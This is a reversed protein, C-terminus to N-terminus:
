KGHRIGDAMKEILETSFLSHTEVTEVTWKSTLKRTKASLDVKEVKFTYQSELLDELIGSLKFRLLDEETLFHINLYSRHGKASHDRMDRSGGLVLHRGVRMTIKYFIGHEKLRDALEVRVSKKLKTKIIIKNMQSKERLM